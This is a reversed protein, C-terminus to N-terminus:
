TVALINVEGVDIFVSYGADVIYRCEDILQQAFLGLYCPKQFYPLLKNYTHLYKKIKAVDITNRLIFTDIIFFLIARNKIIQM